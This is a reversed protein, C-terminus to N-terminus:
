ITLPATQKDLWIARQFEAVAFNEPGGSLLEQCVEYPVLVRSYLTELLTLDGWAAVLAIAPSTNIVIEDSNPM